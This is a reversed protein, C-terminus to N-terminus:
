KNTQFKYSIRLLLKRPTIKSFVYALKMALGPIILTKRRKIGKFIINACKTATMGRNFHANARKSFNTLVPGPAVLLVRNKRNQRKLEYNVAMSLHNVYAKSAAYTAFTPTPLVGAMSGVNVVDGQDFHQLFLKTLTQVSRINLDLMNQEISADTENFFGLNGYGANNIFYRIDLTKVKDFLAICQTQDSLDHPAVIIDNDKTKLEKALQNLKEENRAVLVLDYGDKAFLRALEKGIGSSAGTIVAYM